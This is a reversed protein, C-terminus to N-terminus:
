QDVQNSSEPAQSDESSSPENPSDAKSPGDTPTVWAELNFEGGIQEKIDTLNPLDTLKRLDNQVEDIGAQRALTTPLQRIEKSTDQILKWTPSMMIKRLYQGILAGTKVLDKPGLVILIIILIFLIELPGIGFIDM